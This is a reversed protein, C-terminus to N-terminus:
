PLPVLYTEVIAALVLLAVVRGSVRVVGVAGFSRGARAQAWAAVPLALALWEVPLHPLYRWLGPQQALANGAIAGHGLLQGAVLADGVRRAGPLAPWGLAILALPWLAVPLNHAVLEFVTRPTAALVDRPAPATIVRVGAQALLAGLGAAVTLAALAAISSSARNATHQRRTTPHAAM